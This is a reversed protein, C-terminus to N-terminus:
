KRFHRVDMQSLALAGRIDGMLGVNRCFLGVDGCFLGTDRVQVSLIEPDATGPTVDAFGPVSIQQM